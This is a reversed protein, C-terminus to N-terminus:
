HLSGIILWDVALSAAAALLAQYRTHVIKIFCLLLVCADAYFNPKAVRFVSAQMIWSSTAAMFTGIFIVASVSTGCLLFLYFAGANRISDKNIIWLALGIFFIPTMVMLAAACFLMGDVSM